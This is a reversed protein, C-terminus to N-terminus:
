VSLSVRSFMCQLSSVLSWFKWCFYKYPDCCFQLKWPQTLVEKGPWLLAFLRFAHVREVQWQLHGVAGTISNNNNNCLRITAKRNSNNLMVIMFRLRM